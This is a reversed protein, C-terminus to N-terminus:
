GGGKTGGSDEGWMWWMGEKDGERGGELAAWPAETSWEEDDGEQVVPQGWGLTGETDGM